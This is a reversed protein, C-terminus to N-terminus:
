SGLAFRMALVFTSAVAKGCRTAAKFQMRKAAAVAQEDLGHGLGSLVKADRVFGMEDIQIELRVRGEVEAMRAAHTYEPRIIREPVAKQLAEDCVERRAVLVKPARPTMAALIKPAQARAAIPVALGDSSSSDLAIGLNAFPSPAEQAAEQAVEPAAVSRAAM